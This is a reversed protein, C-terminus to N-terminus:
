SKIQHMLPSHKRGGYSAFYSLRYDQYHNEDNYPSEKKCAGGLTPWPTNETATQVVCLRGKKEFIKLAMNKIKKVVQIM